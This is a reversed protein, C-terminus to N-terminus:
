VFDFAVLAACICSLVILSSYISTVLIGCCRRKNLRGEDVRRAINSDREDIIYSMPVTKCGKGFFVFAKIVLEYTAVDVLRGDSMLLVPFSTVLILALILKLHIGHQETVQM